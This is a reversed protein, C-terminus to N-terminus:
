SSLRRGVRLCRDSCKIVPGSLFDFGTRIGRPENVHRLFISHNENLSNKPPLLQVLDGPQLTSEQLKENFKKIM